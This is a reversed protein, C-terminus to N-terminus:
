FTYFFGVKLITPENVGLGLKTLNATYEVDDDDRANVDASYGTYEIFNDLDDTIYKTSVYGLSLLNVQANLSLNDTINYQIGPVVAIGFTTYKDGEGETTVDDEISTVKVNGSGYNIRADVYLKVPDFDGFVYRFYPTLGFGSEKTTNKYDVGNIKGEDIYKKSTYNIELGVGMNDAFMFGVSPGFVFETSKPLNISTTTKDVKMSGTGGNSEYGITGGLYFQAQAFCAAAVFALTIFLKKM